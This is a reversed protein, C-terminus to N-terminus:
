ILFISIMAGTLVGLSSYLKSNKKSVEEAEKLNREINMKFLDFANQQGYVGSEGLVMLFDAITKEDEKTFYFESKQKIYIEKFSDYATYKKGCILDEAVQKFIEGFVKNENNEINILAEPLPTNKYLIENKLLNSYKNVECLNKYRNIYRKGLLIGTYSCFLFISIILLYKLM